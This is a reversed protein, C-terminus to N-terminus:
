EVMEDDEDPEDYSALQAMNQIVEFNQYLEINDAIERDAQHRRMVAQSGFVVALMVCSFITAPLLLRMISWRRAPVSSEDRAVRAWFHARSQPHPEVEPLADLAKWLADDRNDDAEKM